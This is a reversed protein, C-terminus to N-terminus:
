RRPARARPGAPGDRDGRRRPARLGRATSRTAAARTRSASSRRCRGSTSRTSRAKLIQGLLQLLKNITGAALELLKIEKVEDDTIQDLRLAGFMPLLHERLNMDMNAATSPALRNARVRPRARFAGRVRRVHAGTGESRKPPAVRSSPSPRRVHGASPPPARLTRRSGDGGSRKVKWSCRSTPRWPPTGKYPAITIKTIEGNTVPM